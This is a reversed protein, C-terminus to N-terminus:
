LQELTIPARAMLLFTCCHGFQFYWLPLGDDSADRHAIKFLITIKKGTRACLFRNDDIRSILRFANEGRDFFKLNGGPINEVCVSMNVMDTGNICDALDVGNRERDM